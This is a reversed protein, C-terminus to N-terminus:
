WRGKERAEVGQLHWGSEQIDSAVALLPHDRGGAGRGREERGQRGGETRVRGRAPLHGARRALRADAPRRARLRPLARLPSPWLRQAHIHGPNIALVLRTRRPRPAPPGRPHQRNGDHAHPPLTSARNLHRRELQRGMSGTRDLHYSAVSTFVCWFWNFISNSFPSNSISVPDADVVEIKKEWGDAAEGAVWFMRGFMSKLWDQVDGTKVWRPESLPRDKDLYATLVTHLPLTATGFPPVTNDESSEASLELPHYTASSDSVGEIQARLCKTKQTIREIL